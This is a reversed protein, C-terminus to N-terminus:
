VAGFPPLAPLVREVMDIISEGILIAEAVDDADPPLSDPNPYDSRNRERRLVGVRSIDAGLPPDLQARVADIM